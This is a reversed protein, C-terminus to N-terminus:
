EITLEVRSVNSYDIGPKGDLHQIMSRAGDLDIARGPDAPLPTVVSMLYSNTAMTYTADPQIPTGDELTASTIRMPQSEAAPKVAHYRMGSVCPAGHHDGAPIINLFSILERGTVKVIVTQNCFPDLRYCDAVTFPGAPFEELRVNGMNVIAVDTGACARLADAMMCGLSERRTIDKSVTTLQRQMYPMNKVADVAALMEEDAPLEGLPILEAQKSVVRGEEVEFTLRTIYKVKNESQTILVGNEIHGGEVRTHTHGGIIADAQPFCKALLIDDEFGMHTLLILVDCQERLFTYDRVAALPSRFRFNKLQDPHADPLGNHQSTQVLGLVCIRVGDREFFHYPAIKLEPGSATRVNACVFPFNAANVCDRLQDPGADFEHNGLTSIDFGLKNMLEIMPMGSEPVNDVYPNGTRNDGASMLLVGPRAEREARLFTALRPLADINAHMDNLGLVSVQAAFASSLAALLSLFPLKM